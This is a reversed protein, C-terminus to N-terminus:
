DSEDDAEKDEAEMQCEFCWLDGNPKEFLLDDECECRHCCHQTDRDNGYGGTAWWDYGQLTM